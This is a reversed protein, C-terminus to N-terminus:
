VAILIGMIVTPLALFKVAPWFNDLRWGLVRLTEGRALHSLVMVVLAIALPIAAILKDRSGFPQIVWEAMLFSIMISLMEWAAIVRDNTKSEAAVTTMPTGM